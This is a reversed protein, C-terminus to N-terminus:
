LPLNCVAQTCQTPSQLTNKRSTANHTFPSVLHYLVSVFHIVYFFQLLTFLELQTM